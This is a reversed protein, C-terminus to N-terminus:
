WELRDKILGVYGYATDRKANGSKFSYSPGFAVSASAVAAVGLSALLPLGAAQSAGFAMAGGFINFRASLDVLNFTMSNSSKAAMLQDRVASQVQAFAHQEALPRDPSRTTELYLGDIASFLADREAQHRRKFELIRDVPVDSSPTPLANFLEVKFGRGQDGYVAPNPFSDEGLDLSWLGPDQDELVNFAAMGVKPEIDEPSTYHLGGSPTDVLQVPTSQYQRVKTLQEELEGGFSSFCSPQDIKDWYTIWFRGKNPDELRNSM